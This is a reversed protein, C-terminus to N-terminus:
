MKLSIIKLIHNIDGYHLLYPTQIRPEYGLEPQVVFYSFFYKKPPKSETSKQFFSKLNEINGKLLILRISHVNFQIHGTAREVPSYRVHLVLAFGCSDVDFM